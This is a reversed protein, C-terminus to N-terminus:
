YVSCVSAHGASVISLRHHDFKGGHVLVRSGAFIRNRLCQLATLAAYPLAAAIETPVSDPLPVCDSAPATAFEAWFGCDQIPLSAVAVRSGLKLHSQVSSGREIVVGVADRGLFCSPNHRLRREFLHRHFQICLPCFSTCCRIFKRM